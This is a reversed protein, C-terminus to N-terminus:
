GCWRNLSISYPGRPTRGAKLSVRSADGVGQGGWYVRMSAPMLGGLRTHRLVQSQGIDPLLGSICEHSREDGSLLYITGPRVSQIWALIGSRQDSGVHGCVVNRDDDSLPWPCWFDLPVIEVMGSLVREVNSLQQRSRETLAVCNMQKVGLQAWAIAWCWGDDSVVTIHLDRLLYLACLFGVAEDAYQRSTPCVVHTPSDGVAVGGYRTM